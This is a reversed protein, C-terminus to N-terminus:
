NIKSLDIEFRRFFDGEGTLLRLRGDHCWGLKGSDLHNAFSNPFDPDMEVKKSSTVIGIFPYYFDSESNMVAIHFPSVGPEHYRRQLSEKIKRFNWPSNTSNIAIAWEGTSVKGSSPTETYVGVGNWPNAKEIKLTSLKQHIGFTEVKRWTGVFFDRDISGNKCLEPCSKKYRKCINKEPRGHVSNVTEKIEEITTNQTWERWKNKEPITPTAALTTNLKELPAAEKLSPASSRASPSWVGDSGLCMETSSITNGSQDRITMTECQQSLAPSAMLVMFFSLGIFIRM